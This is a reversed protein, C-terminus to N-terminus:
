VYFCVQHDCHQHQHYGTVNILCMGCAQFHESLKIHSSDNLGAWWSALTIKCILFSLCLASLYMTWPEKLPLTLCGPKLVSAPVVVSGHREIWLMRRQTMTSPSFPYARIQGSYILWCRQRSLLESTSWSQRLHGKLNTSRTLEKAIHSLKLGPQFSTPQGSGAGRPTPYVDDGVLSSPCCEWESVKYNRPSCCLTWSFLAIRDYIKSIWIPYPM